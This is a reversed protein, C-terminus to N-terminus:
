GAEPHRSDDQPAPTLGADVGHERLAEQLRERGRALRSRVTGVPVALLEAAERYTLGQVEVLVVVQRFVEPLADIARVLDERLLRNLFEQEPSSQWLLFPQHLRDFLSPGDAVSDVPLHEVDAGAARRGSLYANNLIRFIWSRLAERDRLTSLAQWGRAVAEAVLDEADASGGCLRLARGYLDPLLDQVERGYWARDAQALAHADALPPM